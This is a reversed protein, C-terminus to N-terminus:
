SGALELRLVLADVFRRVQRYYNPRRGVSTFGRAAYLARAAINDEAVELVVSRSRRLLAERCASALLASGCGSRRREPLVGLSVIEWEAGLDLALVFGIPQGKKWAIRGFFGAMKMIGAITQVDWPDESFCSTHLLSLTGAMAGSVPQIRCSV